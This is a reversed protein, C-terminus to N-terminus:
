RSVGVDGSSTPRALLDRRSPAYPQAPPRPRSKVRKGVRPNATPVTWAASCDPPRWPRGRERVTVRVMDRPEDLHSCCSMCQSFGDVTGDEGIRPGSRRSPRDASAMSGDRHVTTGTQGISGLRQCTLGLMHDCATYFPKKADFFAERGVAATNGFSMPSLLGCRPPSAIACVTDYRVREGDYLRRVM